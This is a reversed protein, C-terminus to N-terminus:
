VGRNNTVAAYERIWDKLDEQNNEFCDKCVPLFFFRDGLTFMQPIINQNTSCVFCPRASNRAEVEKVYSKIEKDSTGDITTVNGAIFM